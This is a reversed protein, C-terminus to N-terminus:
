IEGVVGLHDGHSLKVPWALSIQLEIQANPVM